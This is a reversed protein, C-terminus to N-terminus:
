EVSSASFGQESCFCTSANGKSGECGMNLFSLVGRGANAAGVLASDGRCGQACGKQARNLLGPWSPSTLPQPHAAAPPLAPTGTGQLPPERVPPQMEHRVGPVSLASVARLHTLGENPRRRLETWKRFWVKICSKAEKGVLYQTVSMVDRGLASCSGLLPLGKM